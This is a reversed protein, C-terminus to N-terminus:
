PRRPPPRPLPWLPAPPLNESAPIRRRPKLGERSGAAGLSLRERASRVLEGFRAEAETRADQIRGPRGQESAAALTEERELVVRSTRRIPPFRTQQKQPLCPRPPAMAARLRPLPSRARPDEAPFRRSPIKSKTGPAPDSAEDRCVRLKGRAGSPQQKQHHHHHAPAKGGLGHGVVQLAEQRWLQEM